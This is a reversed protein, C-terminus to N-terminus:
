EVRPDHGAPTAPATPPPMQRQQFLRLLLWALLGLAAVKTLLNLLGFIMGIPGFWSGHHGFGPGHRGAFREEREFGQALEPRTGHEFRGEGRMSPAAPQAPMAPPAPLERFAMWRSGQDLRGGIAVLLALGALAVAILGLWNRQREM